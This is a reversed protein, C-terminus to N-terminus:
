KKVRTRSSTRGKEEFMEMQLGDPTFTIAFLYLTPKDFYQIPVPKPTLFPYGKAIAAEFAPTIAQYMFGLHDIGGIFKKPDRMQVTEPNLGLDEPESLIFRHKGVLLEVSKGMQRVLKAAFVDKFFAENEGRNKVLLQLHDIAFRTKGTDEKREVIVLRNYDPGWCMAAKLSPDHPLKFNKDLFVLGNKELRRIAKELNKTSFALWHVGYQPPLNPSPEVNTKEWRKPDGVRIGPFPGKGSINITSQKDRVLLFDIFQFPNDSEERMAKAGFNKKFFQNAAVRDYIYYHIDDLMLPELSQANLSFSLCLSIYLWHNKM